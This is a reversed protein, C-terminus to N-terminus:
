PKSERYDNWYEKARAIDKDQSSKDGGLLLVVITDGDKAFYVRYGAGFHLRLELVGEGVGRHDGFNGLTMRDVRNEIRDQTKTDSISELWETYPERGDKRRYLALQYEM